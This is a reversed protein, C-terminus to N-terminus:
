IQMSVESLIWNRRPYQLVNASLNTVPVVWGSKYEKKEKKKKEQM